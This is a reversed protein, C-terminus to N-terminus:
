NQGSFDRDRNMSTQLSLLSVSVCRGRHGAYRASSKDNQGRRYRHRYCVEASRGCSVTVHRWFGLWWWHSRWLFLCRYLVLLSLSLARALSLSLPFPFHHALISLLISTLLLWAFYLSDFLFISHRLFLNLQTHSLLAALHLSSFSHSLSLTLYIRDLM